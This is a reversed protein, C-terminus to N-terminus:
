DPLSQLAGQGGRGSLILIWFLKFMPISPLFFIFWFVPPHARGEAPGGGGAQAEKGAAQSCSRRRRGCDAGGGPPQHEGQGERVRGAAPGAAAPGEESRQRVRAPSLFLFSCFLYNVPLFM